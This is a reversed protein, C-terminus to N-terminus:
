IINGIDMILLYSHAFSNVDVPIMDAVVCRRACSVTVINYVSLTAQVHHLMVTVFARVHVLLVVRVVVLRGSDGTAGGGMSYM